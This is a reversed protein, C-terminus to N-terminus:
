HHDNSLLESLQDFDPNLLYQVAAIATERSKGRWRGSSPLAATWAIRLGDVCQICRNSGKAQMRRTSRVVTARSRM